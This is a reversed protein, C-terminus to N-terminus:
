GTGDGDDLGGLVMMRLNAATMMPMVTMMKKVLMMAVVRMMRMM